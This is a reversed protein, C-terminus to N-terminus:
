VLQSGTKSQHLACDMTSDFVITSGGAAHSTFDDRYGVVAEDHTATLLYTTGLHNPFELVAELQFLHNCIFCGSQASEELSDLTEHHVLGPWTHKVSPDYSDFIRHCHSCLM